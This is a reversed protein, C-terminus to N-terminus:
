TPPTPCVCPTDMSGVMGAPKLSCVQISYEDRCRRPRPILTPSTMVYVCGINGLLEPALRTMPMGPSKTDTTVGPLFPSLRFSCSVSFLHALTLSCTMCTGSPCQQTAPSLKSHLLSLRNYPGKGNPSTVELTSATTSGLASAFHSPASRATFSGCVASYSYTVRRRGHNFFYM